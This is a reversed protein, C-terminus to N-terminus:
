YQHGGLKMYTKELSEMVDLTVFNLTSLLTLVDEHASLRPRLDGNVTGNTLELSKFHFKFYTFNLCLSM